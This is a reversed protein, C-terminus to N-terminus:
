NKTKPTARAERWVSYYNGGFIMAAGLAVWVDLAEAYVLYAVLAVLPLRLFDLPAMLTADALRFARAMAYNAALGALGWALIWPADSWAPWVWVFLAPILGMPLQLVNMYFVILKPDDHRTLYKVAVHNAAFAVCGALVVLAAPSIVAAGPRLIILVGAFGGLTAIWRHRGMREGLLPIALLATWVPITFELSTVEALPLLAVGYVWTFQATFQIAARGGHVWGRRTGLGRLGGRWLFPTLVVVAIINRFFMIEVKPLESTLERVAVMMLVFGSITVCMWLSARVVPPLGLPDRTGSTASTTM